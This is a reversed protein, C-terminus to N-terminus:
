IGEYNKVKVILLTETEKNLTYYEGSDNLWTLLASHYEDEDEFWPANLEEILKPFKNNKSGIYRCYHEELDVSTKGCKPCYDMHWRHTDAIFVCGCEGCKFKTFKM